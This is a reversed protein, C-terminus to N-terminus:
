SSGTKERPPAFGVAVRSAPARGNGPGLGRAVLAACCPSGTPPLPACGVGVNLRKLQASVPSRRACSSKVGFLPPALLRLSFFSRRALRCSSASSACDSHTVQSSSWALALCHHHHHTTPSTQHAVAHSLHWGPGRCSSSSRLCIPQAIQSPARTGGGGVRAGRVRARVAYACWVM